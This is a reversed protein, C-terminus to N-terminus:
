ILNLRAKREFRLEFNQCCDKKVNVTMTINWKVKWSIVLHLARKMLQKLVTLVVPCGSKDNIFVFSSSSGSCCRHQDWNERQLQVVLDARACNRNAPKIADMRWQCTACCSSLYTVIHWKKEEGLIEKLVKYMDTSYTDKEPAMCKLCLQPPPPVAPLFHLSSLKCSAGIYELASITMYFSLIWLLLM